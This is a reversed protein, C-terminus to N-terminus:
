SERSYGIVDDDTSRQYPNEEITATERPEGGLSQALDEVEPL